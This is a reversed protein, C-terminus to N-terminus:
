SSVTCTHDTHYSSHASLKYSLNGYCSPGVKDIDISPHPNHHQNLNLSMPLHHHRRLDHKSRSPRPLLIPPQSLQLSCPRVITEQFTLPLRSKELIPALM